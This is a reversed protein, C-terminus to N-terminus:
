FVFFKVKKVSFDLKCLLQSSVTFSTTNQINERHGLGSIETTWGSGDLDGHECRRGSVLSPTLSWNKGPHAAAEQLVATGPLGETQRRQRRAVPGPGSFGRVGIRVRVGPLGPQRVGAGAVERYSGGGLEAQFQKQSASSNGAM